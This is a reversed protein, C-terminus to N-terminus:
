EDKKEIVTAAKPAPEVKAEAKVEQTRNGNRDFLKELEVEAKRDNATQAL